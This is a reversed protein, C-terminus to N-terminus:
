LSVLDHVFQTPNVLHTSGLIIEQGGSAMVEKAARLESYCAGGAVFVVLRTKGSTGNARKNSYRSSRARVSAVGTTAIGSSKEGEDPMPYISPYEKFSLKKQQIENLIVKLDSVYRSDDYELESEADVKRKVLKDNGMYSSFRSNSAIGQILPYGIKELNRVAKIEKPGLRAAEFLRDKDNARLGKQSVIFIALLRFRGTPDNMINLREEVRGVIEAVRGVTGEEDTGNVLTQEIGSLELLGTQTFVKMCDHAIQMHDRLKAMVEQYEPLNKLAATMQSMSLPKGGKKNVVGSNSNVIERVRSSIIELVDAIHKGRLEVWLEDDDNLLTDKLDTGGGTAGGGITIKDGELKLLDNVIAQYTFEHVLPSLCDDQRSLVLLTGRGKETHESDGHYWWSDNSSIFSNFKDNFIQAISSATKSSARYRIHPYENLSACVTVLKEAIAIEQASPGGGLAANRVLHSFINSQGMDFHFVRDENALFDINLEVFAKLRSILPKCSKIKKFIGDPVAKTFYLFVSDAYLPEKRSKSPTWDEILKNVNEMTPSLFYIPASQRYPARKKSILEVLYIRSEMLKYMGLASSIIKTTEDDLILLMDREKCKAACSQLLQTEFHQQVIYRLGQPTTLEANRVNGLM